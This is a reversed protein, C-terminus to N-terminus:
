GIFLYFKLTVAASNSEKFKNFSIILGLMKFIIGSQILTKQSYIVFALIRRMYKASVTIIFYICFLQHSRFFAGSPKILDWLLLAEAQLASIHLNQIQIEFRARAKDTSYVQDAKRPKKPDGRFTDTENRSIQDSTGETSSMVYPSARQILPNITWGSRMGPSSKHTEFQITTTTYLLFNHFSEYSRKMGIPHNTLYYKYRPYNYFLMEMQNKM